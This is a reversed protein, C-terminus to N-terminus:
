IILLKSKVDGIWDQLSFGDIKQDTMGLDEASLRLSNIKIALWRLEDAATAHLNYRRGECLFSCNTAPVFREINKLAKKKEAIRTKLELIKSDNNTNRKAM